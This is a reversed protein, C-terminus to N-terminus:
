GAAVGDQLLGGAGVPAGGALQRSGIILACCLGLRTGCIQREGPWLQPITM